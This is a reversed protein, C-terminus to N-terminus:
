LLREIESFIKNLQFEDRFADIMSDIKDFLIEKNLFDFTEGFNRVSDLVIKKDTPLNPDDLFPALDFDKAVKKAQYQYFWSIFISASKSRSRKTKALYFIKSYIKAKPPFTNLPLIGYSLNIRPNIKLIEEKDKYFGFYVATKENAFNTLDDGADQSYSFFESQTDSFSLYTKLASLLNTKIQEKEKYKQNLSMLSLLIEGKHRIDKTGMAVPYFDPRYSRLSNIFKKLDDLTRPKQLNLFNLIDQNYFAMLSDVFVPTSTSFLDPYKSLFDNDIFVIDPYNGSALAIIVEEKVEELSKTKIELNVCFREFPSLYSKIKNEEFPLWIQLKENFCLQKNKKGTFLPKFLAFFLLLLILAVVGVFIQFYRDTKLREILENLYENM